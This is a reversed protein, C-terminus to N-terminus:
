NIQKKYFFKSSMKKFALYFKIIIIKDTVNANLMGGIYKTQQM